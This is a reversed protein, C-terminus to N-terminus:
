SITHSHFQNVSSFASCPIQPKAIARVRGEHQAKSALGCIGQEAKEETM